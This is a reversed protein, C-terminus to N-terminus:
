FVATREFNVIIKTEICNKQFIPLFIWWSVYVSVVLHVLIVVFVYKGNGNGNGDVYLSIIFISIGNQRFHITISFFLIVTSTATSQYSYADSYTLLGCICHMCVTLRALLIHCAVLVLIAYHNGSIQKIAM